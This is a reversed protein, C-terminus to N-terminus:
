ANGVPEQEIPQTLIAQDRCVRDLGDGATKILSMAAESLTASEQSESKGAASLYLTEDYIEIDFSQCLDVLVEMSDPAFIQMLEIEKGPTCYLKFYDTFDGELEAKKLLNSGVKATLPVDLHSNEGIAVVHMMTNGHLKILIMVRGEENTMINYDFGEMTGKNISALGGENLMESSSILPYDEVSLEDIATASSITRSQLRKILIYIAIILLALLVSNPTIYTSESLPISYMHETTNIGMGNPYTKTTEIPWGKYTVPILGSSVVSCRQDVFSCRNSSIPTLVTKRTVQDLTLNGILLAVISLVIVVSREGTKFYAM